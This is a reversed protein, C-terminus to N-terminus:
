SLVLQRFLEFPRLRENRLVFAALPADVNDFEDFDASHETCIRGLEKSRQDSGVITVEVGFNAYPSSSKETSRSPKDSVTFGYIQRGAAQDIDAKGGTVFLNRM